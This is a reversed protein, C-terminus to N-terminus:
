SDRRAISEVIRLIQFIEDGEALMTTMSEILQEAEKADYRFDEKLSKSLFTDLKELLEMDSTSGLFCIARAWSWWCWTISNFSKLPRQLNTTTLPFGYMRLEKLIDKREADSLQDVCRRACEGVTSSLFHGHFHKDFQADPFLSGIEELLERPNNCEHGVAVCFAMHMFHRM